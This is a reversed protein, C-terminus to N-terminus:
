RFESFNEPRNLSWDYDIYGIRDAQDIQPHREEDTYAKIFQRISGAAEIFDDAYWKFLESLMLTRGDIHLQRQTKFARVTNATMLDDTNISTYLQKRLPPCGVSACNVAYHVRADKWGKRQYESGLLIDKEIASLSYKKGGVTFLALEFVHKKLPNYRGGYDWVSAVLQGKLPHTLLHEIMFFNYANLWFAISQYQETLSGPNFEALNAKQQNLLALTDSDALAKEYNFASVLGGGPLDKEVVFRQLIKAYPAYLEELESNGDAVATTASFVMVVLFVLVPYLWHLFRM